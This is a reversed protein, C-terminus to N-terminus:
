QVTALRHAMIFGTRGAMGQGACVEPMLWVVLVSGWGIAFVVAIAVEDKPSM